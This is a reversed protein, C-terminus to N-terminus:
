KSLSFLSSCRCCFPSSPDEGSYEGSFVAGLAGVAALARAVGLGAWLVRSSAWLLLGM